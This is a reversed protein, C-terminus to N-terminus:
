LYRERVRASNMAPLPHKAGAAPGLGQQRQLEPWGRLDPSMSRGRPDTPLSRAWRTPAQQRPASVLIAWVVALWGDRRLVTPAGPCAGRSIAASSILKVWSM